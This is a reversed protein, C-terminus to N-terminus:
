SKLINPPIECMDPKTDIDCAICVTGNKNLSKLDCSFIEKVLSTWDNTKAFLFKRKTYIEDISDISIDDMDILKSLVLFEVYRIWLEKNTLENIYDDKVLLKEKYKDYIDKPCINCNIDNEAIDKLLSAVQERESMLGNLLFIDNLLMNFDNMYPPYLPVLESNNDEIIEDFAEISMFDIREHSAQSNERANMEYEIAVLYIKDDAERFVGGGSAGRIEEINIFKPNDFTVLSSDKKSFKVEYNEIQQEIKPNEDRKYKPYGYFEYNLDKSPEEFEKLPTEINIKEIKLIAIDLTEHVYRNSQNFNIEIGCAEILIEEIPEQMTNPDTYLNHKATLIYSYDETMPEFLVGSGGSVKVTFSRCREFFTM